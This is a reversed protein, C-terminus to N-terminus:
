SKSHPLTMHYAAFGESYNFRRMLNDYNKGSLTGSGEAHSTSEGMDRQRDLEILIDILQQKGSYRLRKGSREKIMKKLEEISLLDYPGRQRTAAEARSSEESM